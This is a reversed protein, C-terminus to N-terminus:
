KDRLLKYAKRYDRHTFGHRWDTKVLSPMLYGMDEDDDIICIKDITPEKGFRDEVKPRAKLVYDALWKAIEEGRNGSFVPTKDILYLGCKALQQAVNEVAEEDVRWTSSLVIDAGTKKCLKALLRISKDQLLMEHNIRPLKHKKLYIFWKESNLVGDIDLFIVKM